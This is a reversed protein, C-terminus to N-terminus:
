TVIKRPYSIANGWHEIENLMDAHGLLGAAWLYCRDREPIEWLHLWRMDAIIQPGKEVEPDYGMHPEADGIEIQFTYQANEDDYIVHSVQRIIKGTVNCEELLERLAAAAPTEDPEIGGGPLCWWEDPGQKHKMMLIRRDKVVLCQARPM